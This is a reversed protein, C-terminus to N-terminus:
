TCVRMSARDVRGRQLADAVAASAGERAAPGDLRITVVFAALQARLRRVEAVLALVDARGHTYFTPGRMIRRAEECSRCAPAHGREPHDCVIMDLMLMRDVPENARAEIADLDLAKEDTSM